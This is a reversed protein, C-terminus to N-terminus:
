KAQEPMLKRAATDIRGAIGCERLADHIAASLQIQGIDDRYLDRVNHAVSEAEVCLTALELHVSNRSDYRPIPVTHWLHLDFHRRTKQSQRYAKQLSDANLLATLYAAESETSCTFHYLTDNTITSPFVRAARLGIRGSKNYLIKRLGEGVSASVTQRTLKYWNATVAGCIEHCM